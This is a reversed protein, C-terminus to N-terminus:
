EEPGDEQIQGPRQPKGHLDQTDEEPPCEAFICDLGNKLAELRDRTSITSRRNSRWKRGKDKDPYCGDAAGSQLSRRRRGGQSQLSREQRGRQRQLPRGRGEAEALTEGGEQGGRCPDGGRETRKQLDEKRSGWGRQAHTEKETCITLSPRRLRGKCRGPDGGGKKQRRMSSRRSRSRHGCDQTRQRLIADKGSITGWQRRTRRDM